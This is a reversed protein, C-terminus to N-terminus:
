RSESLRDALRRVGELSFRWGFATLTCGPVRGEGAQAILDEVSLGVLHAAAEPTLTRKSDAM